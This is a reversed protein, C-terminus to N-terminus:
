PVVVMVNEITWRPRVQIDTQLVVFREAPVFPFASGYDYRGNGNADVFATLRYAGPPINAFEWAGPKKLHVEFRKEAFPLSIQPTAATPVQTVAPSNAANQSQQANSDSAGTPSTPLSSTAELVVIYEAQTSLIRAKPVVSMSAQTSASAQATTAQSINVQSINMKSISAGSVGVFATTSVTFVSDRVM